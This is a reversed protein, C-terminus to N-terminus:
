EGRGAVNWKLALASAPTTVTRIRSVPDHRAALPLSRPRPKVMIRDAISSTSTFLASSPVSTQM